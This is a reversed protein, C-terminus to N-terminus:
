DFPLKGWRAARFSPCKMSVYSLPLASTLPIDNGRNGGVMGWGGGAGFRPEVGRTEEVARM